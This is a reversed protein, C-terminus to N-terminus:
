QQIRCHTTPTRARVRLLPCLSSVAPEPWSYSVLSFHLSDAVIGSGLLLAQSSHQIVASAHDLAEKMREGYDVVVKDKATGTAVSGSRMLAEKQGLGWARVQSGMM